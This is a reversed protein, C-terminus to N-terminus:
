HPFWVNFVRVQVNVKIYNSPKIIERGGGGKRDGWGVEEKEEKKKKNNKLGPIM